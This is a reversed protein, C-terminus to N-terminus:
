VHLLKPYSINFAYYASLLLQVGQFVSKVSCVIERDVVLFMSVSFDM